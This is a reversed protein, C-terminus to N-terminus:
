GGQKSLLKVAGERRGPSAPPAVPARPGSSKGVSCGCQAQSAALLVHSKQLLKPKGKEWGLSLSPPDPDPIQPRCTGM